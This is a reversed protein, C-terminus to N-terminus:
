GTDEECFRDIDAVIEVPHDHLYSMGIRNEFTFTIPQHQPHRNANVSFVLHAHDKRKGLSEGGISEGGFIMNIMGRVKEQLPDVPRVPTREKPRDRERDRRLEDARIYEKLYGQQM